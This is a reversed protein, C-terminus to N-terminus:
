GGCAGCGADCGGGYVSSSDAAVAKDKTAGGGACAFITASILSLIVLVLWLMLFTDGVGGGGDIAEKWERDMEQPINIIQSNPLQELVFDVKVQTM